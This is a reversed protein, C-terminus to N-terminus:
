RRAGRKKKKGVELAARGAERDPGVYRNTTTLQKHGLMYAVGRLSAGADLREKARGHRFDYPSFARGRLAGLVTAAARKLAKSYNHRGFVLGEDPAVEALIAIAEETLDVERGFRAKDDDDTLELHRMGPRWNEPVRLRSLTEPRLATEWMLAFRARKPWARGDIRKSHEPVLELIARSEAPTIMVSKARQTGSRIGRAKPPLVPVPPAYSIVGHLKAWALFQRIYSLERLVTKRLVQGLRALGYETTTAENIGDLSSFYDTFRSAYIQLTPVFSAHVSSRKSEVWKALLEPLALLQGPNRQIARRRGQVVEAYARASAKEAEAPDTTGLAINHEHGEWTFRSYARGRKWRVKHGEAPRGM